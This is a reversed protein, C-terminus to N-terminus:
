AIGPNNVQQTRAINVQLAPLALRRVTALTRITNLFRRHTRDIRRQAHESQPLTLGDESTAAGAYRAEFLKLAFWDHAAADALLREVPSPDPGALDAAVADIDAKVSDKTEQKAKKGAAWEVLREAVWREMGEGAPKTKALETAM